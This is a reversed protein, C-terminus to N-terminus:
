EYRELYTRFMSIEKYDHNESKNHIERMNLIDILNNQRLHIIQDNRWRMIDYRQGYKIPHIEYLNNKYIQKSLSRYSKPFVM